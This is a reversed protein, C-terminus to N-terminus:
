APQAMRRLIALAASDMDPALLPEPMSRMTIIGNYSQPSAYYAWIDADHWGDARAAAVRAVDTQGRADFGPLWDIRIQSRRPDFLWAVGATYEGHDNVYSEIMAQYVPV